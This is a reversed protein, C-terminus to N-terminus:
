HDFHLLVTARGDRASAAVRDALRRLMFGALRREGAEDALIEEISPREEPLELPPGDYSIRLDLRYEDFSASLEIPGATVGSSAVAEVAQALSFSAREVVDRRAAWRAGCTEVFARLADPDVRGAAVTITETERVGIRFLLNLGLAVTAGLLLPTGLLPRVADPLAAVAAPFLDVALGLVIALGVVITRRADLLRTGLIQLGNVVIFTSSFVLAAGVVARPMAHLLLGLKPVLALALLIAAISWAVRRSHVGTAAALGVAATSSNLGIAGVGAALATTAGDSLVGRQVSRMDTRVWGADTAVQSSTVNGVVKVSAVIAALLFPAVYAADFAFGVHSADPWAFTPGAALRAVDDPAVAGLWWGVATGAVLGALVCFMRLHGRGWVNLGIMVALTLVAVGVDAHLAGPSQGVGAGLITRLGIVGTGIGVLLSVLGAIEPPLLPRLRPMARSLALQAFGALLTMGFALPLGGHAAAAITPVLYVVTPTPQCLYGSGFPGVPLVQLLPGAALVLLTLSVMSAAVEAPAGAAQAALVPFVLYVGMLAVHQLGAFAVVGPPPADLPGFAVDTPLRM